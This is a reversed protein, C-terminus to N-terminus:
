CPKAVARPVDAQQRARNQIPPRIITQHTFLRIEFGRNVALHPSERKREIACAEDAATFLVGDHNVVILGGPIVGHKLGIGAAKEQGIAVAAVARKYVPGTDAHRRHETVAVPDADARVLERKTM